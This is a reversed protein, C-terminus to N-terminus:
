GLVSWRTVPQYCPGPIGQYSELLEENIDIGLGPKDNPEIFGGEFKFPSGAIEDRFPNVAALDAEYILGNPIACLLHINAATSIISQSTHPAVFLHCAEAMDAIKKVETIGGAKTCDAQIIDLTQSQLIDRFAYKTYSNEGAALPISTKRKLTRYAQFNDPTFPEEIWYVNNEECYKVIENLDTIHYRTAADVAIDLDNGFTRRIHGVRKADEKPNQGVRLKIATFGQGVIKQVEEELEEIPKYGLSLGGAYARIRQHRGGLLKYVPQGLLKGRVDWLAIDIGSLAIVAATGAGHTAIQHNYVLQWIGETNMPDAGILLPSISHNIIEAIATPCLAHHAEGYGITGDECTIKVLVLDRKVNNGLGFKMAIGHFSCSYAKAVISKIVANKEM